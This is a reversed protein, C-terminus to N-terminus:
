TRANSRSAKGADDFDDLVYQLLVDLLPLGAALGAPDIDVLNALVEENIRAAQSATLQGQLNALAMAWEHQAADAHCTCGQTEM